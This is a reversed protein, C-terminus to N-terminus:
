GRRENQALRFAITALDCLQKFSLFDNETLRKNRTHSVALWAGIARQEARISGWFYDGANVLPVGDRHKRKWHYAAGNSDQDGDAPLLMNASLEDPRNGLAMKERWCNGRKDFLFMVVFDVPLARYIGEMVSALVSNLERSQCMMQTLEQTIRLYLQSSSEEEPAPEAEQEARRVAPIVASVDRFGCDHLTKVAISANDHLHQEAKDTRCRVMGAYDGVLNKLKPNHWGKAIAEAIEHSLRVIPAHSFGSDKGTLAAAVVAGLNWEESLALTLEDLTFGLVKRQAELPQMQEQMQLLANAHGQPFCWFVIHGLRYLMAGIFVEENNRLQGAHALEKAQVAAHLSLMLMNMANDHARGQLVTDILAISLALNRVADFGLLMIAYSVTDIRNSGPNYIVSNALRLVKATMASDNLIVAALDQASCASDSSMAVLRRATNAFVPLEASNLYEIWQRLERNRNM